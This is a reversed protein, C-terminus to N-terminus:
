EEEEMVGQEAGEETGKVEQGEKKAYNDEWYPDLIKDLEDDFKYLDEHYQKSHLAEEAAEDEGKIGECQEIVEMFSRHNDRIFCPKLLNCVKGNQCFNKKQWERGKTFLDSHMADMINRGSDYLERVNDKYYPIFVCPMINGNWDIYFYHKGCSICGSTLEASNWFDAVFQHKERITHKWKKFLEFRQAPKIMLETNFHRGIPMYQFMWMYSVGLEDFYKDYFEDTMLVDYNKSTATVSVGFPMKANRLHEFAKLIRAYVGKGRREDTEKEYGEVSIATTINGLEAMEDAVEQTILTGNTYMLFFSDKFKRPLDLIKHGQSEYMMPEGGSIVFFRMGLNDHLDTMLKDVLDWELTESCMSESSAYCGECTLNCRKTPSLVFFAPPEEGYKQKYIEIAQKREECGLMAGSVLTNVIKKAAEKSLIGKDMNKLLGTLMSKMGSYRDFRVEKSYLPNDNEMFHKYLMKDVKKMALNRTLKNSLILNTLTTVAGAKNLKM